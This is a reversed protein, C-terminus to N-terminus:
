RLRRATMHGTYHSQLVVWRVLLRAGSRKVKVAVPGPKPEDRQAERFRFWAGDRGQYTWKTGPLGRSYRATAHYTGQSRTLRITGTYGAPGDQNYVKGKWTGIISTGARDGPAASAEPQAVPSAVVLVTAVAALMRRM